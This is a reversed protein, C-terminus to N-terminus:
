QAEAFNSEVVGVLGGFYSAVHSPSEPPRSSMDTFFAFDVWTPGM